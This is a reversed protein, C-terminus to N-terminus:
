CCAGAEKAARRLAVDTPLDPAFDELGQMSFVVHTADEIAAAEIQAECDVIGPVGWDRAAALVARALGPSRTDTLVAGPRRGTVCVPGALDEGRFNVIQREGAADILVTSFSSQADPRVDVASARLADLILAGIADAGPRGVLRDNGGSRAVAIAGNAACGGITVASGTARCKESRGPMQDVRMVFDAVAVGAILVETM